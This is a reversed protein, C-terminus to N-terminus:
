NNRAENKVRETEKRDGCDRSHTPNFIFKVEWKDGRVQLLIQVEHLCVSRNKLYKIKEM